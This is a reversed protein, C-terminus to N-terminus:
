LVGGSTKATMLVEPLVRLVYDLDKKSTKRDLSLRISGLSGRGLAELVHSSDKASSSCASGASVAVGRSDLLLVLFESDVGPFSININAPSRKKPDGNIIVEPFKKKVEAFFYDRLSELRASEESRYKQCLKLAQALGAIVPLNETGSRFGREQGGGFIIPDIKLDGRYALLGVGKPGYIKAANLTIIDVELGHLNLEFFRGAQCADSHFYPYQGGLAQRHNKVLQGLRRLPNVVGIENNVYGVSVIVTEPKLSKKFEDLNIHGQDDVNLYTIAWGSKSLQEFVHLVSHHEVSTTIIHGPQKTQKLYAGVVGLLALNNAETGSGCFILGEPKLGLVSAITSRYEELSKRARAGEKHISSPNGFNKRFEKKMAWWVRWNLNTSAATDLYIRKM